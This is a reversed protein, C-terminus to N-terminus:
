DVFVFENALLLVQAYEEWVRSSESASPGEQGQGETSSAEIFRLGAAVEEPDATRGYALRYLSQIRQENDLAMLEPRGILSRAQELIFPSNLLFLAQQPM